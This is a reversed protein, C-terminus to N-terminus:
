DEARLLIRDASWAGGGAASLYLLAFCFMIVPEGGNLIPYVSKPLHIYFYAVATMGSLLFAVPRTFLGAILLAGGVLELIGAVGFINTPSAHNMPSTPFDLYKTVGHAFLLLGTVFRLGSLLYTAYPRLIRM